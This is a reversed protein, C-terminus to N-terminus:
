RIVSPKYGEVLKERDGSGCAEAGPLWEEVRLTQSEKLNGCLLSRLCYKDKETQRIEIPKIGELNMWTTM